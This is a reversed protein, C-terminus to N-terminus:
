TDIRDTPDIRHGDALLAKLSFAAGGFLILGALVMVSVGALPTQVFRVSETATAEGAALQVVGARRPTWEATTVGGLLLTDTSATAAGPRYTVLLTDAPEAFTLTVAQGRVPAAPDVEIQALAAPAALAVLALAVFLRRLGALPYTSM